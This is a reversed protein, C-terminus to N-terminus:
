QKPYLSNHINDDWKTLFDRLDPIGDQIYESIKDYFACIYANQSDLISLDFIYFALAEALEMLPLGLSNMKRILLFAKPLLNESYESELFIHNDNLENNKISKVYIKVLSALAIEDDPMALVKMAYVM